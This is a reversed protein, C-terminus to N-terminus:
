MVEGCAVAIAQGNIASAGVGALWAVADAVEDPTVLRGEPNNKTMASLADEKSRGTKEIINAVSDRVIDTDTFGPCVANATVGTGALELALARTMGVVGHKAATYAATYAYGTLGATSAVTIIRGFGTKKMQPLAARTMLFAGTLNVDLMRHWLDTSTREFPATEAAGANNILIDPTGNEAVLRQWTADVGAEDTVDLLVYGSGPLRACAEKLRGGSRGALTVLFGDACLRRAVSFGIGSGGGTVLARKMM